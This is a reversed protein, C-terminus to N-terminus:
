KESKVNASSNVAKTPNGGEKSEATKRHIIKLLNSWSISGEFSGDKFKVDVVNESEGSMICSNKSLGKITLM